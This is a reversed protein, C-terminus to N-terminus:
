PKLRIADRSLGQNECGFALEGTTDVNFFQSKPNQFVSGVFQSIERISMDQANKGKLIVEGQLGAPYFMPILGNLLRTITTKGCGSKGCLVICEGKEITLSINDLANQHSPNDQGGEYAVSINNLRIM